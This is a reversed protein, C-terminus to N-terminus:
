LNDEKITVGKLDPDSYFILPRSGSGSGCPYKQSGPDLDAHFSIRIRYVPQRNCLQVTHSPRAAGLQLDEEEYQLPELGALIDEVDGVRQDLHSGHPDPDM